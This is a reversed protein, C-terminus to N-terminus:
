KRLRAAAEAKRIAKERLEYAHIAKRAAERALGASLRREAEDFMEEAAIRAQRAEEDAKKVRTAVSDSGAAKYAAKLEKSWGAKVKKELEDLAATGKDATQRVRSKELLWRWISWDQAESMLAKADEVEALKRM